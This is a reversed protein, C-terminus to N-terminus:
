TWPDEEERRVHEKAEDFAYKILPIISVLWLMAAIYQQQETM